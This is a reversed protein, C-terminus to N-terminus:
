KYSNAPNQFTLKKFYQEYFYNGLKEKDIDELQNEVLWDETIVISEEQTLFEDYIKRAADMVFSEGYELLKYKDNLFSTYDVEIPDEVGYGSREKQQHIDKVTRKFKNNFKNDARTNNRVGYGVVRLTRIGYEEELYLDRIFDELPKDDHFHSDLEVVLGLNYFHYDVIYYIKNWIKNILQNKEEETKCYKSAVKKAINRHLYKNSIPFPFEKICSLEGKKYGQYISNIYTEWAINTPGYETRLHHERDKQINRGGVFLPCKYIGLNDLDFTDRKKRFVRRM